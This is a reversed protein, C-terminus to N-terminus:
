PIDSSQWLCFLCVINLTVVTCVYPTGRVTRPKVINGLGIGQYHALLLCVTSYHVFEEKSREHFEFCINSLTVATCVNLTCFTEICSIFAKVTSINQVGVHTCSHERCYKNQVQSMGTCDM